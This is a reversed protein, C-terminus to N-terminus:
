LEEASVLKGCGFVDCRLCRSCEQKAEEPTMACEVHEFDKKRIYAPREQINVRGTPIRNNPRAEPAEM